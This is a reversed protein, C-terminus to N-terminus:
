FIALTSHDLPTLIRQKPSAWHPSLGLVYPKQNAKDSFVALVHVELGLDHPKGPIYRVWEGDGRWELITEDVAAVQCPCWGQKQIDSIKEALLAIDVGELCTNLVAHRIRVKEACTALYFFLSVPVLKQFIILPNKGDLRGFYRIDPKSTRKDNFNHVGGTKYVKWGKEVVKDLHEKLELLAKVKVGEGKKKRLLDNAEKEQLDARTKEVSKEKEEAALM